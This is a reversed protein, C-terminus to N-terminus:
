GIDISSKVKTLADNIRAITKLGEISTDIKTHLNWDCFLKLTLFNIRKVEELLELEKRALVMLTRTEEESIHAGKNILREIKMTIEPKM